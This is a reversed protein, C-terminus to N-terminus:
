TGCQEDIMWMARGVVALGVAAKSSGGMEAEPVRVEMGYDWCAQIDTQGRVGMSHAERPRRPSGKNEQSRLSMSNVGVNMDFPM